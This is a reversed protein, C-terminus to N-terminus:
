LGRRVMLDRVKPKLTAAVTEAEKKTEYPGSALTWMGSKLLPYADTDFLELEVGRRKHRAQSQEAETRKSKPISEVIVLWSETPEAVSPTAVPTLSQAVVPQSSTTQAGEAPTTGPVNQTNQGLQAVQGDLTTSTSQNASVQTEAAGDGTVETTETVEQSNATEYTRTPPSAFKVTLVVALVVIVSWSIVSLIIEWGRLPQKAM